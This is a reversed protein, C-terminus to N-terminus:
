LCCERVQCIKNNKCPISRTNSNLNSYLACFDHLLGLLMIFSIHREESTTILLETFM